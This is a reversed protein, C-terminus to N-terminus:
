REASACQTRWSSSGSSWRSRTASRAGGLIAVLPRRPHGVIASLADVERQMLQGAASPLRNAVGETSAHARHATGFADDVYADAFEALAAVLDPDDRTEGPEYRVNELM